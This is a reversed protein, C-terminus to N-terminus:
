RRGKGIDSSAAVYQLAMPGLMGILISGIPGTDEAVAVLGALVAGCVIRLLSAVVFAIGFWEDPVDGRRARVVGGLEYADHLLAGLAGFLAAIVPSM